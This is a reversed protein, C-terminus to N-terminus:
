ITCRETARAVVCRRTRRSRWFGVVHAQEFGFRSFAGSAARLLSQQQARCPHGCVAVALCCPETLLPRHRAHSTVQIDRLSFNVAADLTAYGEFQSDILPLFRLAHSPVAVSRCPADASCGLSLAESWAVALPKTMGAFSLLSRKWRNSAVPAFPTRAATSRVSRLQAHRDSHMPSSSAPGVAAVSRAENQAWTSPLNQTNLGTNVLDNLSMSRCQLSLSALSLPRAESVACEVTPSARIESEIRALEDEVEALTRM